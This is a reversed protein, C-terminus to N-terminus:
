NGFIREFTLTYKEIETLAISIFGVVVSTQLGLSLCKFSPTLPQTSTQSSFPQQNSDGQLRM